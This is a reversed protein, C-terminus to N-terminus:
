RRYGQICPCGAHGSAIDNPIRLGEYIYIYEGLRTSNKLVQTSSEVQWMITYMKDIENKEQWM